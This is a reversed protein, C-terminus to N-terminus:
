KNEKLIYAFLRECGTLSVSAYFALWEIPMHVDASMLAEPASILGGISLGLAVSSIVATVFISFPAKQLKYKRDFTFRCESILYLIVACQILTAYHRMWSNIPLTQDFYRVFIMLNVSLVALMSLVSSVSSVSTKKSFSLIISAPFAIFLFSSILEIRSFADHHILGIVFKGIIILSLAVSILRFFMGVFSIREPVDIEFSKHLFAFVAGIIVSLAIATLTLTFYVSPDFHDIKFNFAKDVSLYYFLATVVALLPFIIKVALSLANAHKGNNM